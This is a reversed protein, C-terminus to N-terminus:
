GDALRKPKRRHLDETLIRLKHEGGVEIVQEISYVKGVDDLINGGRIEAHRMITQSRAGDIELHSKTKLLVGPGGSPDTLPRRHAPPTRRSGGAGNTRERRLQLLQQTRESPHM